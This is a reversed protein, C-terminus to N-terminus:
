SGGLGALALAAGRALTHRAAVLRRLRGRRGIPVEIGLAPQLAARHAQELGGGLHSAEQV